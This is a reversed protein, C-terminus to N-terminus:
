VAAGGRFVGDEDVADAFEAFDMNALSLNNEVAWMEGPIVRFTRGPEDWLDIRLVPHEPDVITVGDVVFLFTHDSDEPVAAVIEAASAGQYAPDDLFAVYAQFPGVPRRLARCVSAWADDDSFDTRVVLADESEPIPQM